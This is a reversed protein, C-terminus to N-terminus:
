NQNAVPVVKTFFDNWSLTKESAFYMKAVRIYSQVYLFMVTGIVYPLWSEM